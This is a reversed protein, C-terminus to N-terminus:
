QKVCSPRRRELHPYPPRVAGDFVYCTALYRDITVAAIWGKESGELTMRVQEPRRSLAMAYTSSFYTANRSFQEDQAELVAELTPKLHPVPGQKTWVSIVSVGTKRNFTSDRPNMCVIQLELVNDPDVGLDTMPVNIITGDLAVLPKAGPLLGGCKRPSEFSAASAGILLLAPAILLSRVLMRTM